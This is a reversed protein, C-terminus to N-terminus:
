TAPATNFTKTTPAGEWAMRICVFSERIKKLAKQSNGGFKQLFRNHPSSQM